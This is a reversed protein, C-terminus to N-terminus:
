YKTRSGKGKIIARMRRPMSDIAKDIVDPDLEGLTQLVRNRFEDFSEKTIKSDIAEEELLDKLIHFIGEIPNIDPSCSPLNWLEAEIEELARMAVRSVQSPDNDMVFVRKGNRKPGARAFCLNFHQRIFNAFFNGNLKEYPEKLIVGKGYAIAVILHLRKGGALDKPGKSTVQLGESKRRWVRAKPAMAASMPNTKYVFSVGDLYFAVENAWFNPNTKGYRIMKRAYQLRLKKNREKLLGKKRAQLFWFGMDNLCRSFTRVSATQFDLGSYEILKKVSVALGENRMKLLDRKLTREVRLSIKRPRGIKQSTIRNRREKSFSEKCIREASSTSIDCKEAIKSYSLGSERRLFIALARKAPPIKRRFVM